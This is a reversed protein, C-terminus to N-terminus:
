RLHAGLPPSSFSVTDGHTYSSLFPVFLRKRFSEFQADKYEPANNETVSIGTTEIVNPSIERQQITAGQRRRLPKACAPRLEGM